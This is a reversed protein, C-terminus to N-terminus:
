VQLLACFQWNSDIHSLNKGWLSLFMEMGHPFLTPKTLIGGSTTMGFTGFALWFSGYCSFATGGFLNNRYLEAHLALMLSLLNSNQHLLISHPMYLHRCIYSRRQFPHECLGQQRIDSCSAPSCNCGHINLVQLMWVIRKGAIDVVNSPRSMDEWHYRGWMGALLQTLGGLFIAHCYVM